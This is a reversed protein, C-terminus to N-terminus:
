TYIEGRYGNLVAVAQERGIDEDVAIDRARLKDAWHDPKDGEDFGIAEADSGRAGCVVRRVGAYPIAGLCMACPACSTVLTFHGATSLDHSDLRQQALLLAVVEAHLLSAGAPVVRNVGLAVLDLGEGLVAAAFPGGGEVGNIEAAAVVFAMAEPLDAFHRPQRNLRELWDPLPITFVNPHPPPTTM